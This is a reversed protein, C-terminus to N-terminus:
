VLNIEKVDMFHAQKAPLGFHCIQGEREDAEVLSIGVRFCVYWLRIAMVKRMRVVMDGRCHCGHVATAGKNPSM